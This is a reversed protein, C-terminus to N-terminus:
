RTFELHLHCSEREEASYGQSSETLAKSRGPIGSSAISPAKRHREQRVTKGLAEIGIGVCPLTAIAVMWGTPFTASGEGNAWPAFAEPGTPIHFRRERAEVDRTCLYFSVVLLQQERHGPSEEVTLQALAHAPLASQLM